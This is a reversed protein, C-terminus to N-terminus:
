HGPEVRVFVCYRTCSLSRPVFTLVRGAPSWDRNRRPIAIAVPSTAIPPSATEAETAPAEGCGVTAWTWALTFWSVVCYSLTVSCSSWTPSCSEAACVLSAWTRVATFWALAWNRAAWVVTAWIAAAVKSSM